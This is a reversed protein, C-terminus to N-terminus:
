GGFPVMATVLRPETPLPGDNYAGAFTGVVGHMRWVVRSRLLQGVDEEAVAHPRPLLQGVSLLWALV